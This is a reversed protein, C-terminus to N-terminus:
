SCNISIIIADHDSLYTNIQSISIKSKLLQKNAYVHDLLGGKIHTSRTVIQVFGMEVSTRIFDSKDM